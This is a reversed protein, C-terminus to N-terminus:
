NSAGGILWPKSLLEALQYRDLQNKAASTLQEQLKIISGELQLQTILGLRYRLEQQQLAATLEDIGSKIMDGQIELQLYTQYTDFLAKKLAIKGSEVAIKANSLEKENAIYTDGGTGNYVYYDLGIKALKQSENLNFIMLSKEEMEYWAKELDFESLDAITLESVVAYREELPLGCLKNLEAYSSDIQNMQAALTLKSANYVREASDMDAKSVLGVANKLQIEKFQNMQYKEYAELYDKKEIDYALVQYAQNVSQELTEKTTELQRVLTAKSSQTALLGKWTGYYVSDSAGQGPGIPLYTVAQVMNDILDKTKEITNKQTALTKDNKVALAMLATLTRSEDVTVTEPFIVSLDGSSVYSVGAEILVPYRLIMFTDNRKMVKSDLTFVLMDGEKTLTIAKKEGDWSIAYDNEVAISRIAKFTIDGRQIIPSTEDVTLAEPFLVSLDAISVYSTGAEILVPYQLNKVTDNMKMVKSDLTFVLTDGEKTLTIAKKVGDWSIAYENEVAVSRIMKYTIDGRQLIPSTEDAYAVASCALMAILLFMALVKKETKM